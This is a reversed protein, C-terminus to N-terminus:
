AKSKVVKFNRKQIKDSFEKFGQKIAELSPVGGGSSDFQNLLFDIYWKGLQHTLFSCSVSLIAGGLLAGVGPIFKLVNGGLGMVVTSGALSAVLGAILNRWFEASTENVGFVRSIHVMMMVQIPVLVGESALPIPIAGAGGASVVAAMLAKKAEKEKLKRSRQVIAFTRLIEGGPLVQATAEVLNELGEPPLVYGRDLHEEIARVRM